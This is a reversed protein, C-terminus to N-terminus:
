RLVGNKIFNEFQQTGPSLRFGTVFNGTGDVVVANNTTTNFFVKSNKVFGYTGQQVTSTSSMHTRIASEFQALTEPNKKTTVVGFDSAHKFKKDLQKQTIGTLDGARKGALKGIVRGAVKGFAAGLVMGGMEYLAERQMISNVQDVGARTSTDVGYISPAFDTMFLGSDLMYVFNPDRGDPDLYKVPNNNGYAYRNFSNLNDEQFGVPDVGMFRGVAPDYYRAGFYQLGTSADAQKGHFWQGQGESGPQQLQREGYAQYNEKWVVNGNANTAALPSGSIDTHIYTITEGTDEEVTVAVAASTTAAGNNDTAVATIQYSGAPVNSWSFSYPATTATGLLTAGNYFAVSAISGDTDAADATLAISAPATFQAGAAPSTLNVTPAHNPVAVSVTVAASTTVAGGNDTARATISYSGVAVNNWSYSYPARTVTGLLTAGNYFAVRSISGDSDAAAAAITVTSNPELTAGQAPSTIEVTPVANPVVTVAVAASSLTGRSADVPVMRATISYTGVPLSSVNFQYPPAAVTALVTDGNLFEVAAICGVCDEARVYMMQDGPSPVRGFSSGSIQISRRYVTFNVWETVRIAGQNTTAIARVRWSGALMPSLNRYDSGRFFEGSFTSSPGVGEMRVSALDNWQALLGGVVVTNGSQPLQDGETPESIYLRAPDSPALVRVRRVAETAAGDTAIARIRIDHIGEPLDTLTAAFQSTGGVRANATVLTQGLYIEVRDLAPVGPIHTYAQTIGRVAIKAPVAYETLDTPESVTLRPATARSFHRAPSRALENGAADLARAIVSYAGGNEFNSADLIAQPSITAAWRGAHVSVVGNRTLQFEVRDVQGLADRVHADVPARDTSAVVEGATPWVIDVQVPVTESMVLVEVPPSTTTVGFNDTVVATLTYSGAPVDNWESSYSSMNKVSRLLTAGNYIAIDRISRHAGPQARVDMAINAPATFSAGSVPALFSLTPAQSADSVEFFRAPTTTTAGTNDIARASIEYTGAAVNAWSYSYPASTDTGLLTAGNYFAVSTISRESNATANASLTVAAPAQAFQAVAPATLVVTPPRDDPAVVVTVPASRGVAGTNDIARATIQYTGSPVGVWNRQYPAGFSVAVETDGSYFHVETITRGVSASAQASLSLTAPALFSEADTPSTMQVTPLLTDPASVVQIVVQESTREAGGDDTARATIQYSGAPVNSWSYSYPASTDTGLLTAGNYFAVSAVAGDNDAAEATLTISAPATFQAGAAPATLSVSPAQNAPANVAVAVAASTTVAGQNDTAQAAISYNGAAVNTWSYSYPASTDSGLLTAGNYFAVSAINGDSDTADATLSISAPATFEAGSAPATLAVTPSQNAASVTVNVAASTTTAGDDDTARATLSYIGAPVDAWSFSYPATTDTGLLTAGSYFAVSAVTGDSDAAEATLTISAPATFQAGAAPATLSVTPAQNAPANVTVAVAASTTVVGSNDTARATIQYSGTAVNTWSYSYPASTDSGLLTAGNYFAVSSISGDTDAANASLTVSAPATFQAGAAPATLSVTPAQNAPANVTVAVAASTTIAGSNDTAQATISYNGAAVNSWSFSYPASTDSGLLTAGNYFAVSAISGDSDAANASFTISAPATFSAGTAPATLSVTPAQNAPANVTVAVAASATVAGSNDTARATIQYSGAAVNNWSFSYPASTDSGLLTAGNYFAISAVTGDSDAANATINVTAPATFSAGVVPTTLSVTPAQNPTSGNVNVTMATSTAVSGRTDTARATLRHTGAPANTWQFEYPAQTDTALLTNGAYFAISQIGDPDYAWAAVTFSAPANFTAGEWPQTLGLIPPDNPANGNVNVTMATSTAVSGRTDTARATLIHTGAPANTWQYEYPAQTDTALLTNGAYFAISQIGDPDYAWAAVTFSAPANFTAGEWPQTLGLIPPQNTQAWLSTSGLAMLGALWLAKARQAWTQRRPESMAGEGM